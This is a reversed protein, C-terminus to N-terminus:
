RQHVTPLLPLIHLARATRFPQPFCVVDLRDNSLTALALATDSM